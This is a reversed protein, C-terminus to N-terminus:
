IEGHHGGRVQILEFPPVPAGALVAKTKGYMQDFDEMNIDRGGLGAVFEVIQPADATGYLVQKIEASVPGGPGGPSFHRDIVTLAKAGRVANKFDEIPLPRWLRFRVLGVKEGRERQADVWTMATESISGMTVMMIEADESRYTEVPRYHRGFMDGFGKFTEVIPGYSGRVAAEAVMKAETYVTPMGVPGMSIPNDIDLRMAPVFNPLFKKVEDRDPLSLPEIMHSVIFGDFHVMIPLLVRHDESIKHALIVLDVAEQGNEAFVQLWGVDRETMVDSHDNWINIPGSLARNAVVMVMPMRLASAIFLVEHMLALGQSSTATFTRAGAAACGICASLAAHESEVPIFEADLEGEAVIEALHEVVHTQPTIPYAAICDVDCASAAEAIAISVEMGKRQAM